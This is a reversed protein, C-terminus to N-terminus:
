EDEKSTDYDSVDNEIREIAKDQGVIELLMRIAQGVERWDLLGTLEVERHVVVGEFMPTGDDDQREDDYDDVHITVIVGKIM